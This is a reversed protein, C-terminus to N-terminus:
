DTLHPTSLLSKVILEESKVILEGFAREDLRYTDEGRDTVAFYSLVAGSAPWAAVDGEPTLVALPTSAGPATYPNRSLAEAHEYESVPLIATSREWGDLRVSLHRRCDVVPRLLACDMGPTSTRVVEDRIDEPYLMGVDATDLLEIYRSRIYGGLMADADIGDTREISCDTRYHGLGGATRCYELMEAKSLIVKM